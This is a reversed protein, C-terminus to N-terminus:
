PLTVLVAPWWCQQEWELPWEQLHQMPSHWSMDLVQLSCASTLWCHKWCGMHWPKIVSFALKNSFYQEQFPFSQLFKDDPFIEETRTLIHLLKHWMALIYVIVPWVQCSFWLRGCDLYTCSDDFLSPSSDTERVGRKRGYDELPNHTHKNTTKNPKKESFWWTKRMHLVFIKLIIFKFGMHIELEARVRSGKAWWKEGCQDMLVHLSYSSCFWWVLVAGKRYLSHFHALYSRSYQLLVFYQSSLPIFPKSAKRLTHLWHQKCNYGFYFISFLCQKSSRWCSLFSPMTGTQEHRGPVLPLWPM